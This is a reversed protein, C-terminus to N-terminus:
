KSCQISPDIGESVENRHQNDRDCIVLRFCFNVYFILFIINLVVLKNKFTTQRLLVKLKLRIELAYLSESKEYLFYEPRFGCFNPDLQPPPDFAYRVTEYKEHTRKPGNETYLFNPVTCNM